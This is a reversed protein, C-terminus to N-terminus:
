QAKVASGCTMAVDALLPWSGPAIVATGCPLLEAVVGVWDPLVDAGVAWGLLELAVGLQVGCGATLWDGLGLGDTLGLTEPEGDGDADLEGVPLGLGVLEGVPLGLGDLEDVPVADVAGALRADTLLLPLATLLGCATVVGAPGCIVRLVLSPVALTGLSLVLAGLGVTEGDALM